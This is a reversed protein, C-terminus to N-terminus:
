TKLIRAIQFCGIKDKPFRYIQPMNRDLYLPAQSTSPYKTPLDDKDKTTM